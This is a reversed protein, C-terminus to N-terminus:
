EEEMHFEGYVNTPYYAIIIEGGIHYGNDNLTKHTVPITAVFADAYEFYKQDLENMKEDMGLEKLWKRGQKTKEAFSKLICRVQYMDLEPRQMLTHGRVNLEAKQMEIIDIIVYKTHSVTM